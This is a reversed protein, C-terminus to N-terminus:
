ISITLDISELNNHTKEGRNLKSEAQHFLRIMDIRILNHYFVLM